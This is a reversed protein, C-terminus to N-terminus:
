ESGAVVQVGINCAPCFLFASNTASVTPSEVLAEGCQPCSFHERQPTSGAKAQEWYEETMRQFLLPQTDINGENEGDTVHLFPLSITLIKFPKGDLERRYLGAFGEVPELEKFGSVAVIMGPELDDIQTM